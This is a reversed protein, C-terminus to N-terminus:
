SLNPPPRMPLNGERYEKEAVRRVKEIKAMARRLNDSARLIAQLVEPDLKPQNPRKEKVMSVLDNLGGTHLHKMVLAPLVAMDGTLESRRINIPSGAENSALRRITKVDRQDFDSLALARDEKAGRGLKWMSRIKNEPNTIRNFNWVALAPIGFALALLGINLGGIAATTGSGAGSRLAGIGKRAAEEVATESVVDAVWAQWSPANKMSIVPGVLFAFKGVLGGIEEVMRQGVLEETEEVAEEAASEIKDKQELAGTSDRPQELISRVYEERILLALQRRTILM